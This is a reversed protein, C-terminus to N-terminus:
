ITQNMADVISQLADAESMASLFLIPVDKTAAEERLRRCLEYGNMLPMVYDTIILDINSKSYILLAEQGDKATIINKFFISLTEKISNKLEEDDEVLIVKDSYEFDQHFLTLKPM